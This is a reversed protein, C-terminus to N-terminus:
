TVLRLTALLRYIRLTLVLSTAFMVAGIIRHITVIVVTVSFSLMLGFTTFRILYVGVGLSLQLIMCGGLLIIPRVLKPHDAHNRLIKITLLSVHVLILVAFFLHADLRVGKHTLVAGFILQLYTFITTTVCLRRLKEMGDSKPNRTEPEAIPEDRQTGRSQGTWEQSTFVALSVTLAFFAQALGAHVIALTQQLMIVRLGGLVGQIIVGCLAVIGLWRLWKREEKLWLLVTLGLTLLGVTAGILRHSHEYFIGGVMKSIPYFFMNYGFTTPWDPVALGSGTSTVLAGAFILVFTAWATLMAFRHVLM